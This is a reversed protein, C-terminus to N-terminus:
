LAASEPRQSCASQIYARVFRLTRNGRMHAFSGFVFKPLSSIVQSQRQPLAVIPSGFDLTEDSEGM